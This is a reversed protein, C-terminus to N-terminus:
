KPLENLRHRLLVLLSILIPPDLPDLRRLPVQVNAPGRGHSILFPGFTGVLLESAPLLSITLPDISSVTAVLLHYEGDPLLRISFEGPTPLLTGALPWGSAIGHPFIGVFSPGAVAGPPAALRGRIAAPGSIPPLPPMGDRVVPALAPAIAEPLHRFQGPSIGVLRSFRTTFAGLSEYGVEFCIDTVSLDTELLLQKAQQLRLAASFEGPPIGVTSRFVRSFHFPSLGAVDAMDHLSLARDTPARLTTVVRAITEVHPSRPLLIASERDSM